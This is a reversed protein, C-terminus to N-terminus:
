LVLKAYFENVIGLLNNDLYSEAEAWIEDPIGYFAEAIGGAIAAITDSDGGISICNRICDEFGTSEFFCTLAQPVSVQCIEKGHRKNQEIRYDECTKDLTYYNDEVYKQIEEKSKGQRALFICVATCEAGKMGEPHNHSVETVTGSLKKVEDLTTGAFGAASVRMASGNGCSNYPEPNESRVWWYFKRGYGCDPYMMGVKQLTGTVNDCGDLIARAVACTMVTDDTFKSNASFLPFDKRNTNRFEYASGVIDGIIAGKM